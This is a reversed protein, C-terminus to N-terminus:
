HSEPTCLLFYKVLLSCMWLGPITLRHSWHATDDSILVHRTTSPPSSLFLADEEWWRQPFHFFFINRIHNYIYTCVSRYSSASLRAQCGQCGWCFKTLPTRMEVFEFVTVHCLALVGNVGLSCSRLRARMMTKHEQHQLKEEGRQSMMTYRCVHLKTWMAVLNKKKLKIESPLFPHEHSTHHHYKDETHLVKFWDCDDSPLHTAPAATIVTGM